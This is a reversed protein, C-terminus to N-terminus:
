RPAGALQRVTSLRAGGEGWAKILASSAAEVLKKWDEGDAPWEALAMSCTFAFGARGPAGIRIGSVRRAIRRALEAAAADDCGPAVVATENSLLRIAWGRGLRDIEASLVGAIRVMAEDGAAHGHEDVFEKFRDPKVMVVATPKALSRAVEEDLRKPLRLVAPAYDARHEWLDLQALVQNTFSASMVFSPHGSACGLNVLRGEALVFLRKGNPWVVMDVQPKIEVRKLAPDTFVSKIDIESDFHGINCVIAENKMKEM